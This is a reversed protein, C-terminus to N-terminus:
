SGVKKAIRLFTEARHRDHEANKVEASGKDLERLKLEAEELQQQLQGADLAGPEIAEEVLVMAHDNAVQLYGQGQAYHKIEGGGMHLRLEAHDLLTMMPAHRALIGVEGVSTRTSLM